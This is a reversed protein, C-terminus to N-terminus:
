EMAKRTTHLAARVQLAAKAREGAYQSGLMGSPRRTMQMVAVRHHFSLNPTVHRDEHNRTSGHRNADWFKATFPFSARLGCQM